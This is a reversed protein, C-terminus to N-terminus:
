GALGVRLYGVALTGLVILALAVPIIWRHVAPPNADQYRRVIIPSMEDGQEYVVREGGPVYRPSILWSLAAGTLLGGIHAANGINPSTFGIVLNIGMFFLLRNLNSKALDGMVRRQKYFFAILAGMLGFIAGSAGASIVFPSTTALTLLSGGLGAILYITAFREQGFLQELERGLVYLAYGNFLVHAIGIHLFMSTFMRWYQSEEYVRILNLAGLRDLARLNMSGNLLDNGVVGELLFMIGIIVLLVPVLIVRETLPLQVVMRTEYRQAPAASGVASESYPDEQLTGPKQEQYEHRQSDM